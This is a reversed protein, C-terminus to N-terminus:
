GNSSEDRLLDRGLALGQAYIGRLKTVDLERWFDVYRTEDITKISDFELLLEFIRDDRTVILGLGITGEDPGFYV